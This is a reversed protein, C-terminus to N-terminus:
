PLSAVTMSEAKEWLRVFADASLFLPDLEETTLGIQKLDELLDPYMGVQAFGDTNFDFTRTGAQMAQFTTSMRHGAFPYTVKNSAAQPVSNKGRGCADNGFRPATMKELGNLDSGFAVPGGKLRDIATLYYQAFTKTSRGCDNAIRTLGSAVDAIEGGGIGLGILGGSKQITALQSNSLARESRKSGAAVDLLGAHSAIVPYGGSDTIALTAKLTREGMHAVDVIMHKRMMEHMLVRGLPKLGTFNCHAGSPYPPPTSINALGLANLMGALEPGADGLRFEVAPETCNVARFFTRNVKFNNYNFLDNYLAAGGFSNDTLHVPTLKRVGLDYVRQLRSRVSDADCNGCDFLDDVEIGLVVALKGQSIADRAERASYVIRYWGKGPGGHAADVQVEILKAAGIQAEAVVMDDCSTVWPAKRSIECFLENNVADLVMLRMGGDVARKLWDVHMQQHNVSYWMPWGDYHPHGGTRHGLVKGVAAGILDQTGGPGHAHECSQLSAAPSDLPSGWFFLGGFALNAFQHSHLDAFGWLPSVTPTPTPGPDAAQLVPTTRPGESVIRVKPLTVAVTASTGSRGDSRSAGVQYYYTAELTLGGDVFQTDVVAAPVVPDSRSAGSGARQVAAGPQIGAIATPTGPDVVAVPTIPDFPGEAAPSRLVVYATALQVPSWTLTVYDHGPTARVNTPRPDDALPLLTPRTAEVRPEVMPPRRRPAVQAVLPLASVLGAALLSGLLTTRM